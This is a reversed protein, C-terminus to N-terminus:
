ADAKPAPAPQEARAKVLERGNDALRWNGQLAHQRIFLTLAGQQQGLLLQEQQQAQQVFQVHAKKMDDLLAIVADDLPYTEVEHNDM